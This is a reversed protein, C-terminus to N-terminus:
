LLGKKKLQQFRGKRSEKQLKVSWDTVKKEQVLQNLIKEKWALEEAKKIIVM